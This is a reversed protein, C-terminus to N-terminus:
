LPAHLHYLKEGEAQQHNHHGKAPPPDPAPEHTYASLSHVQVGGGASVECQYTASGGGSERTCIYWWTNDDLSKVQAHCM